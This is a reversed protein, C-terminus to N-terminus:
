SITRRGNALFLIPTDTVPPENQKVVGFPFKGCALFRDCHRALSSRFCDGRRGVLFRM